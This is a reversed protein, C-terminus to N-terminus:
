TTEGEAAPAHAPPSDTSALTFHVRHGVCDCKKHHADPNGCLAPATHKVAELTERYREVTRELRANEVIAADRSEQKLAILKVAEDREREAIEAALQWRKADNEAADLSARLRDVEAYARRAIGTQGHENEPWQELSVQIHGRDAAEQEKTLM